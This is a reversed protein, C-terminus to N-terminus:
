LPNLATLHSEAHAHWTSDWTYSPHLHVAQPKSGTGTHVLFLSACGPAKLMDKSSGPLSCTRQMIATAAVPVQIYPQFEGNSSGDMRRKCCVCAAPTMRSDVALAACCSYAATGSRSVKAPAPPATPPLEALAPPATGPHRLTACSAAALAPATTPQKPLTHHMPGHLQQHWNSPNPPLLLACWRTRHSCGCLTHTRTHARTCARTAYKIISGFAHTCTHAQTRAHTAYKIISGFM